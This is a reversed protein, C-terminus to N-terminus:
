QNEKGQKLCQILDACEKPLQATISMSQGTIPHKFELRYAHLFMRKFPIGLSGKAIKKNEEFDGYKEDGM